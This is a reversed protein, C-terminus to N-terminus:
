HPQNQNNTGSGAGSGSSSSSTSSSSSSSTPTSSVVVSTLELPADPDIVPGPQKQNSSIPRIRGPVVPTAAPTSLPDVPTQPSATADPKPSLYIEISNTPPQSNPPTNNLSRNPNAMQM